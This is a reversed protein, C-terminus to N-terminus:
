MILINSSIGLKKNLYENTWKTLAPWSNVANKILLPKSLTVYDTM